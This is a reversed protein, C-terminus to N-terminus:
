ILDLCSPNKAPARLVGWAVDPRLEECRVAGRTEREIDPCRDSPVPRLGSLWQSVVGPTVGLATALVRKGGVAAAAREIAIPNRPLTM